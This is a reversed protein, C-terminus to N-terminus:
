LARTALRSGKVRMKDISGVRFSMKEAVPFMERIQAITRATNKTRLVASVDPILLLWKGRILTVSGAREQVVSVKMMGM